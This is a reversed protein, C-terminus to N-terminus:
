IEPHIMVYSIVTYLKLQIVLLIKILRSMWTQLTLLYLYNIYIYRRTWYFCVYICYLLM